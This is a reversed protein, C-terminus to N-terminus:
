RSEIQSRDVGCNLVGNNEKTTVSPGDPQVLETKRFTKSEPLDFGRRLRVVARLQLNAPPRYYPAKECSFGLVLTM